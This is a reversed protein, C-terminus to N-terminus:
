GKLSGYMYCTEYWGRINTHTFDCNNLYNIIDAHAYIVSRDKKLQQRLMIKFIQCCQCVLSSIDLLHVKIKWRKLWRDCAIIIYLAVVDFLNGWFKSGSFPLMKVIITKRFASIHRKSELHKWGESCWRIMQLSRFPTPLFFLRKGRPHLTRFSM